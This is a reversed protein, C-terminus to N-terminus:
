NYLPQYPAAGRCRGPPPHQVSVRPVTRGARGLVTPTQTPQPQSGEVPGKGDGEEQWPKESYRKYAMFNTCTVYGRPLLPFKLKGWLSKTMDRPTSTIVCLNPFVM